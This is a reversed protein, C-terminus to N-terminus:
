PVQFKLFNLTHKLIWCENKFKLLRKGCTFSTYHVHCIFCLQLKHDLFGFGLTISMYQFSNFNHDNKFTFHMIHCFKCVKFFEYNNLLFQYLFHSTNPFNYINKIVLQLLNKNSIEKRHFTFPVWFPNAIRKCLLGM